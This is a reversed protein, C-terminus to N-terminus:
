CTLHFFFDGLKESLRPSCKSENGWWVLHSSIPQLFQPPKELKFNKEKAKKKEMLCGRTFSPSQRHIALNSSQEGGSHVWNCSFVFHSNIPSIGNQKGPM